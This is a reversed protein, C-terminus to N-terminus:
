RRCRARVQQAAGAAVVVDGRAVAGAVEHAAVGPGVARDEVRGVIGAAVALRGVHERCARGRRGSRRAPAQPHRRRRPCSRRAPLSRGSPDRGSRLALGSAVGDDGALGTVTLAPARLTVMTQLTLSPTLAVARRTWARKTRPVRARRWRGPGARRRCASPARAGRAADGPAGVAEDHRRPLVAAARRELLADPDRLRCRRVIEPGTPFRSRRAATGAGCGELLLCLDTFGLSRMGSATRAPATATAAKQATRGAPSAVGM